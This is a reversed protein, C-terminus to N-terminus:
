IKLWDIKVPCIWFISCFSCDITLKRRKWVSFGVSICWQRKLRFSATSLSRKHCTVSVNGRCVPVKQEPDAVWYGSKAPTSDVGVLSVPYFRRKEADQHEWCDTDICFSVFTQDNQKKIWGNPLHSCFFSDKDM